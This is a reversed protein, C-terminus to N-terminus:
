RRPWGINKVEKTVRYKEVLYADYAPNSRESQSIEDEETEEDSSARITESVM